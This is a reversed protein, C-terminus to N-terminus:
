DPSLCGHVSVNESIPLKSYCILRVRTQMNKPIHSSGSTGLSFGRLCMSFM